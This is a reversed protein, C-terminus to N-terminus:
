MGYWANVLLPCSVRPRRTMRLDGKRESFGSMHCMCLSSVIQYEDMKSLVAHMCAHVYRYRM